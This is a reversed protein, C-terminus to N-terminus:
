KQLEFWLHLSRYPREGGRYLWLDVAQRDQGLKVAFELEKEWKQGDALTIGDIQALVEQAQRVELRYTVEDGEHNVIGILATGKGGPALRTSYNEPKGEPGLTYFQTFGEITRPKAVVSGVTAVTGLAAVILLVTLLRDWAPASRWRRYQSALAAAVGPEYRDGRPLRRRRHWAIASIAFVFLLLSLLVPYVRIGWPNFRLALVVLPVVALSLGFSLALRHSGDLDGKRPFLAALLIYGPIFLVFALGLLIRVPGSALLTLPLLIVSLGLVVLIDMPLM